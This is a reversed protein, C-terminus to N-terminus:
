NANTTDTGTATTPTTRYPNEPIPNRVVSVYRGAVFRIDLVASAGENWADAKEGELVSIRALLTPVDTRAHAIFEADKREPHEVRAM